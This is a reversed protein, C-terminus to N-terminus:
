ERHTSRGNGPAEHGSGLAIIGRANMISVEDDGSSSRRDGEVLLVELTGGVLGAKLGTELGDETSCIRDDDWRRLEIM